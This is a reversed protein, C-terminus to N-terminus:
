SCDVLLQEIVSLGKGQCDFWDPVPNEELIASITTDTLSTTALTRWFSWEDDPPGAPRDWRASVAEVTTAKDLCETCLFIMRLGPFLTVIDVMDKFAQSQTNASEMSHVM